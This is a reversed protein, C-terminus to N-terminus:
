VFTHTTIEVGTLHALEQDALGTSFQGPGGPPAAQFTELGWVLELVRQLLDSSCCLCTRKNLSSSRFDRWIQISCFIAEQFHGLFLQNSSIKPEHAPLPHFRRKKFRRKKVRPPVGERSKHSRPTIVTEGGPSHLFVWRHEESVGLCSYWDVHSMRSHAYLLLCKHVRSLNFSATTLSAQRSLGRQNSSRRHHRRCSQHTLFLFFLFWCASAFVNQTQPPTRPGPHSSVM